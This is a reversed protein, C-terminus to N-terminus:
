NAAQKMLLMRETLKAASETDLQEIIKAAARERMLFLTKAATGEDLKKVIPAAKEPKMAEYSAALQKLNKAELSQIETVQTNLATRANKIEEWQSVVKERIALLQEREKAIEDRYLEMRKKEREIELSRDACAQREEKLEEILRSIEESSLPRLERFTKVDPPLIEPATELPLKRGGHWEAISVALAGVVPARLAAAATTPNKEVAVALAATLSIVFALGCALLTVIRRHWTGLLQQIM